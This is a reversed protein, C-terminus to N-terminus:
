NNVQFKTTSNMIFVSIQVVKPKQVQKAILINVDSKFKSLFLVKFFINSEGSINPIVTTKAKTVIDKRSIMPCTLDHTLNQLGYINLNKCSKSIKQGIKIVM